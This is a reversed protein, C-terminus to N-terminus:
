LYKISNWLSGLLTKVTPLFRIGHNKFSLYIQQLLKKPKLRAWSIVDWGTGTGQVLVTAERINCLAAGWLRRDEMPMGRGPLVLSPKLTRLTETSLFYRGYMSLLPRGFLYIIRKLINTRHLKDQYIWSDNYYNKM